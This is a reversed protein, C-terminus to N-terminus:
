YFWSELVSKQKEHMGTKKVACLLGQETKGYHDESLTVNTFVSVSPANDYARPLSRKLRYKIRPYRNLLRVVRQRLLPRSSVFRSAASVLGKINNKAISKIDSLFRRPQLVLKISKSVLRLPYTLNWSSSAYVALLRQHFQEAVAQAERAQEQAERAQEQAKRTQEQAKRAQEQAERAQEQAEWEQEQAKRAQEQAERAQEQAERAQEQAERAQEQAERVQEQAERIQEQAERAQGQAANVNQQLNMKDATTFEDFVNPPYKLEALLEPHEAAVYFRNLGDCYAFIYDSSLIMDEWEIHNFEQSNPRTAEIVIIWPRYISLDMGLLVTKEFGEVDIKMFHVTKVDYKNCIDKLRYSPVELWEGKHGNVEHKVVVDANATAWGRVESQWIKLFGDSDSAAANINIDRVRQAVLDEFHNKLPEINIGSWGNDYFSKTVSDIVPDNAGVDIYFGNEINKLARWLMVDEFNQAYSIFSM